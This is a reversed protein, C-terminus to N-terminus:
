DNSLEKLKDQAEFVWGQYKDLKTIYSERSIRGGVWNDHLVMMADQSEKIQENYLKELQDKM